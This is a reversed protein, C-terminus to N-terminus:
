SDYKHTGTHEFREPHMRRQHEVADRGEPTSMMAEEFSDSRTVSYMALSVVKNVRADIAGIIKLLAVVDAQAPTLAKKSKVIPDYKLWLSKLDELLDGTMVIPYNDDM